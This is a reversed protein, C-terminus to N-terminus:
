KFNKVYQLYHDILTRTMEGPGGIKRGDVQKVPIIGKPANSIFVEDAEYLEKLGIKREIVKIGNKKALKIIFNRTTGLLIKEKPTILVGKKVIFVNTRSGELVHNQCDMFLGEYAKKASAERMALVMPLLSVSKSLPLLRDFKVTVVKVGRKVEDSEGVLRAVQILITSKKAPGFDFHNSGRTVTLRIRSEAFGNKKVTKELWEQLKGDAWPVDLGILKASGRLRRLHERVQWIKGNFTRLTEYVGDAYLFGHDSVAIKADKEPVIRGNLFVYVM